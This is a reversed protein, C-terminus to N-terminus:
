PGQLYSSPSHINSFLCGQICVSCNCLLLLLDSIKLRGRTLPLHELSVVVKFSCNHPVQARAIYEARRGSHRWVHGSSVPTDSCNTVSVYLKCLHWSLWCGVAAAKVWGGCPLHPSCRPSAGVECQMEELEREVSSATRQTGDGPGM